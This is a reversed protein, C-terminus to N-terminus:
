LYRLKHQLEKILNGDGQTSMIEAMRSMNGFIKIMDERSPKNEIMQKTQAYLEFMEVTSGKYQYPEDTFLDKIWKFM